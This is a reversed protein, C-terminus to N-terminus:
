KRKPVISERRRSLVPAGLPMTHSIFIQDEWLLYLWLLQDSWLEPSLLSAAWHMLDLSCGLSAGVRDWSGM